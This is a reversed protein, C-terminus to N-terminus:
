IKNITLGTFVKPYFFTSKQPMREGQEAVDNIQKIKPPNMFFVVQASGKDVKAISDDIASDTDKIYELNTQKALKEEDIGLIQELIIKHLISVDLQKWPKSMQSAASDMAKKDTLVATYFAKDGGYIGFANKDSEFYDKMQALMKQKTNEKSKASDFSFKTIEFKGALDKLLKAFDFGEIAKVVRHTALVVLGDQATNSFAIPQYKASPKQPNEKMYMLGTTYRHHGDAIICSKNSMMKTIASVDDPKDIAFLKHQVAQEDVFAVLPKEKLHKEIIKEVTRKKDEYLMFVLGFEASTARKLNLRDNLPKSLIQEHPRVINGFEELKTLGVFSFRRYNKGKCEFDQVYGYITEASDQKLIGKAMWDRFYEAARTYQNNKENDGPETKGKIIRIVNYQNKEYLRQQQAQDIVDYPPSICNGADGVVRDDFRFAKFPKIEM